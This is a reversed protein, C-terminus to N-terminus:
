FECRRAIMDDPVIIYHGEKDDCSPHDNSSQPSFFIRSQSFLNFSSTSLSSTRVGKAAAGNTSVWQKSASTPIGNTILKKASRPTEDVADRRRKKPPPPFIATSTSASTNGQAEAAARARTRVPASFVPPQYSTSYAHTRSTAPSATSPPPTDEIVIVERTIGERDVEQVESYSVTYQHARKRKRSAVPPTPLANSTPVGNMPQRNYSALMPPLLPSQMLTATQMIKLSSTTTTPPSSISVRGIQSVLGLSLTLLPSFPITQRHKTLGSTGGRAAM